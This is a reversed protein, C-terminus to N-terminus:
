RKKKFIALALERIGIFILVLTIAYDLLSGNDVAWSIFVYALALAALGFVVQFPRHEFLQNFRSPKKLKEM